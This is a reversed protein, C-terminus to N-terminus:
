KTGSDVVILESYNSRKGAPHILSLRLIYNGSPLIREMNDDGAWILLDQTGIIENSLTKVLQGSPTFVEARLKYGAQDLDFEISLFDRYADGNPSIVRDFDKYPKKSDGSITDLYQSNKLGPTGYNVRSSASQWHNKELSSLVPRIKELSVGNEDRVLPHHWSNSYSFSDILVQRGGIPTSMVLDGEKDDFGPLSIQFIKFSDAYPFNDLINKRDPTFVLYDDPAITLDLNVKYLLTSTRPNSIFIDKVLVIKQSVNVIEVYDSGGSVPNFLVENWLLDGASPASPLQFQVTQTPAMNGSCDKADKFILSYQVSDLLAQNLLLLVCHPNDPDVDATAITIGQDIMYLDTVHNLDAHLAENLLLKIEWKSVATVNIIEPGNLDFSQDFVSNIQGPTGGINSQTVAWSSSGKCYQNPKQLELSYGGEKKPTNGYWNQDFNLQHLIMKSSSLLIIEDGTNNLAPLSRIGLTNGYQQFSTTDAVNCLILYEGPGILYYPFPSSSSSADAIVFNSIDFIRNSNNYLEIFEADPLGASPTPDAMFESILLDGIGPLDPWESRFAIEADDTQKNGNKDELNQYKLIYNKSNEFDSQFILHYIKNSAAEKIISSPRGFDVVWYNDSKLAASDIPEEDFEIQLRNREVAQARIIRPPLTDLAPIAIGLDDLIFKDKRTETYTCLIGMFSQNFNMQITDVFLGELSFSKHGSYDSEVMWNLDENRKIKLRVVAPESALVSKVGEGLLRSNNGSKVYLKWNDESGNEGIEIYYGDATMPDAQNMSLWWRFKNTNSPSFDLKLYVTWVQESSIYDYSRYLFSSGASPASLMLQQNSNITFHNTDGSWHSLDMEFFDIWQASLRSVSGGIVVGTLSILLFICRLYFTKM